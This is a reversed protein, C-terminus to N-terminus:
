DGIPNDILSAAKFCHKHGNESDTQAQVFHVHRGCGVDIAGGTKGTFEHYHGEYFDTRFCVEHVHDNPGAPIAEGSVAAFRHNHADCASTVVQTSGVVEHVHRQQRDCKDCDCSERRDGNGMFFEM